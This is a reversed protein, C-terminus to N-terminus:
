WEVLVFGSSGRGASTGAAGGGGFGTANYYGTGSKGGAGFISDGGLSMATGGGGPGGPAGSSSGGSCSVYAGFSSAGGSAGPGGGAGVTVIIVEGPTVEVRQKIKADGGGGGHVDTAGGGGGALTVWVVKIGDPVTFDYTGPNVFLESGVRSRINDEIRNFDGPGPIDGAAWDLKPNQWSM